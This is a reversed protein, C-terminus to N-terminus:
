RVQPPFLPILILGLKYGAQDYCLLHHLLWGLSPCSSRLTLLSKSGSGLVQTGVQREPNQSWETGSTLYISTLCRTEM